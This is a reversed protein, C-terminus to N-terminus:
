WLLSGVTVVIVARELARGTHRLIPSFAAHNEDERIKKRLFKKEASHPTTLSDPKAGRHVPLGAKDASLISSGAGATASLAYWQIVGVMAFTM